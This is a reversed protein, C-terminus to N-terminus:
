PWPLVPAAQLAQVPLGSPLRISRMKRSSRYKRGTCVGAATFGEGLVRGTGERRGEGIEEGFIRFVPDGSTLMATWDAIQDFPMTV